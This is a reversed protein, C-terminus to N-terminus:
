EGTGINLAQKLSAHSRKLLGILKAHKTTARQMTIGIGEAVENIVQSVFVSEKGSFITTTLYLHKTKINIIVRAVTVADQGSTPYAFLHRSIVDM